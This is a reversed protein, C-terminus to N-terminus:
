NFRKVRLPQKKPKNISKSQETLMLRNQFRFYHIMAWIQVKFQNWRFWKTIIIIIIFCVCWDSFLTHPWKRSLVCVAVNYINHWYYTETLRKSWNLLLPSVKLYKHTIQTNLKAVASLRECYFFVLKLEDSPTFMFSQGTQKELCAKTAIKYLAGKTIICYYM